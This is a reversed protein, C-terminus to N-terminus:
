QELWVKLAQRRSIRGVEEGIARNSYMCIRTSRRCLRTCIHVSPSHM